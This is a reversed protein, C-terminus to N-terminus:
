IELGVKNLADFHQWLRHLNAGFLMVISLLFIQPVYFSIAATYIPRVDNRLLMWVSSILYALQMATILFIKSHRLRMIASYNFCIGVDLLRADIKSIRDWIRILLKVRISSCLFLTSMGTMGIFKQLSDGVQSIDSKFFYGVISQQEILASLFCYSFFTLQLFANLYGLKSLELQRNGPQGKLRFPTLGLLYTCLLLTQEAGFADRPRFLERIFDSVKPLCTNM